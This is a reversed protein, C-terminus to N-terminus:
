KQWSLIPYGDNIGKEDICFVGENEANLLDVFEQTKMFEADKCM